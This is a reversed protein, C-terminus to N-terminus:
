VLDPRRHAWPQARELEAALALLTADEGYRGAFQVGVPLGDASWHLPLSIAPQGSANFPAAFPALALLKGLFGEVDADDTPLCGLRPPPVAMTPTVFIDFGEFFAAMRRVELQMRTLNGLYFELSAKRGRAVVEATQPELEGESLPRGRQREMMAVM